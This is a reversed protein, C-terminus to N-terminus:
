WGPLLGSRVLHVTLLSHAPEFGYRAWARQVGANHTQTSIVVAPVDRAVARAEVAALLGAYRGQGRAAASVGALLIEVHDPGDAVTALGLPEGAAGRLLLGDGAAVSRRAWEQYGALAGAQDFLPNALYHNGYAAFIDAVLADSDFGPAAPVVPARTSARGPAVTLRWYTLGDALLATRGSALALPGYWRVRDAPYRLVIVDADSAEIATAAAALATGDTSDSGDTSDTSDTGDSGATGAAAVAAVPVTVRDVAFGFRATDYPSRRASVTGAAITDTWSV